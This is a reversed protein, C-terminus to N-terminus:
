KWMHPYKIGNEILHRYYYKVTYVGSKNLTWKITDGQTSLEVQACCEKIHNWLEVSEGSLTRRFMVLDLGKDIM